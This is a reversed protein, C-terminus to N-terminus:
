ADVMPRRPATTAPRNCAVDSGNMTVAVDIPTEIPAIRATLAAASTAAPSSDTTTNGSTASAMARPSSWAVIDAAGALIPACLRPIDRGAYQNDGDTNVIIDAGLRLCADIGTRFARALGRNARHRIVHQVGHARAVEATRDTSGDDIVLIEIVDIGAISRPIDALTQPLTQEENFCPIQVILKM